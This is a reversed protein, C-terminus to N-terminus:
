KLSMQLHRVLKFLDPDPRLLTLDVSGFVSLQFFVVVDASTRIAEVVGAFKLRMVFSGGEEFLVTFLWKQWVKNVHTAVESKFSTWLFEQHKLRSYLLTPGVQYSPKEVFEGLVRCDLSDFGSIMTKDM